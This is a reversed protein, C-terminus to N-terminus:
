IFLLILATVLASFIGQFLKGVFHRRMSIGGDALIAKTQMHVSLGSFSIAFSTLVLSLNGNFSSFALKKAANSVEFLSFVLSLAMEEKLILSFFGTVVSFFVVFGCVGLTNTAANKVSKVLDYGHIASNSCGKTFDKKIGLIFGTAIASVIMSIYLIIGDWVSGRLSAGIGSVIFAPGTNNSFAILRECEDKTISGDLYLEYASKAGLPFGCIIGILFPFIGLRNIKFIKEFAGGLFGFSDPSINSYLFDSLIMFPFVSGIIVSYCLSLGSRVYAGVNESFFLSCSISLVLLCLSFFASYLPSQWPKKFKTMKFIDRGYM